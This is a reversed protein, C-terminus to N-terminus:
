DHDEGLPLRALADYDHKKRLVFTRVVAFTFVAAFMVLTLLPLHTATLGEYFRQYM